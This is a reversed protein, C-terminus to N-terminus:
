WGTKVLKMEAAVVADLYWVTIRANKCECIKRNFEDWIFMETAHTTELWIFIYKPNVITTSCITMWYLNSKLMVLKLTTPSDLNWYKKKSGGLEFM